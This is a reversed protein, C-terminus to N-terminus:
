SDQASLWSRQTCPLRWISTEKNTPCASELIGIAQGGIPRRASHTGVAPSWYRLNLRLSYFRAGGILCGQAAFSISGLWRM